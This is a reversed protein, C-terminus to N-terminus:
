CLYTQASALACLGSDGLFQALLPIHGAGYLVLVRDAPTTIIRALNAFIRLNRAYWGQVWGIGVYDKGAGVRALTLYARHDAALREPANGQCLVERISARALLAQGEALARQGGGMLQEYLEPQRAQAFAYVEDLGRAYGEAENWDIAYVRAHGLAAALRFGLQHVETRTLAFDGARHRRYEENLAEDQDAAVELAVKTPRFSKLREVCERIEWQRQPALMDDVQLNFVDRGPNALHFTGLLLVVPRDVPAAM